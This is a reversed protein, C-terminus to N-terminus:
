FGQRNHMIYATVSSTGASSMTVRLKCGSVDFGGAGVATLEADTGVSIFNDGDASMELTVTAGDWTGRAMYTGKGGPWDFESSSGDSTLTGASGYKAM